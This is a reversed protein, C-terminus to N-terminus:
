PKQIGSGEDEWIAADFGSLRRARPVWLMLLAGAKLVCETMSQAFLWGSENLEVPLGPVVAVLSLACLFAFLTQAKRIGRVAAVGIALWIIKAVSLALLGALGASPDFEAPAEILSWGCIGLVFLSPALPLRIPLRMARKSTSAEPDVASPSCFVQDAAIRSFRDASVKV